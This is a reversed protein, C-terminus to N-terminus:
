FIHSANLLDFYLMHPTAIAQLSSETRLQVARANAGLSEWHTALFTVNGNLLNFYLMHPTVIAQLSLETRLQVAVKLWVCDAVVFATQEMNEM